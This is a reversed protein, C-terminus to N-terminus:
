CVTSTISHNESSISFQEILSYMFLIIVRITTESGKSQPAVFCYLSLTFPIIEINQKLLTCSTKRLPSFDTSVRLIEFM